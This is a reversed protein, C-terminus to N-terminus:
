GIERDVVCVNEVFETNTVSQTITVRKEQTAVDVLIGEIELGIAVESVVLGSRCITDFLERVREASRDIFAFCVAGDKGRKGVHLLLIWGIKQGNWLAKTFLHLARSGFPAEIIESE